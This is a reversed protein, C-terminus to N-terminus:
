QETAATSEAASAKAITPDILEATYQGVLFNCVAIVADQPLSPLLVGEKDECCYFHLRFGDEKTCDARIHLVTMAQQFTRLVRALDQKALRTLGEQNFKGLHQYICRDTHEDKGRNWMYAGLKMLMKYFHEKHLEHVVKGDRMIFQQVCELPYKKQADPTNPCTGWALLKKVFFIKNQQIACNLLSHGKYTSCSIKRGNLLVHGFFEIFNPDIAKQICCYFAASIDEESWAHQQFIHTLITLTHHADEHKNKHCLFLRHLTRYLDYIGPEVIQINEDRADCPDALLRAGCSPMPPFAYMRPYLPARRNSGANHQLLVRVIGRAQRRKKAISNQLAEHTTEELIGEYLNSGLYNPDAGKQLLAYTGKVNLQQVMQELPWTSAVQYQKEKMFQRVKKRSNLGHAFQDRPHNDPYAAYVVSLQHLDAGANLLTAIADDYHNCIAVHLPAEGYCNYENVCDPHNSCLFQVAPEDHAQIAMCLFNAVTHQETPHYHNYHLCKNPRMYGKSDTFDCLREKIAKLQSNECMHPTTAHELALMVSSAAFCVFLPLFAKLINSTITYTHM